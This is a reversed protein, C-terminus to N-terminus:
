SLRRLSHQELRHVGRALGSWRLLDTDFVMAASHDPKLSIAIGKYSLNGVPQPAELTLSIFSGYDMDKWPSASAPLPAVPAAAARGLEIAVFSLFVAIRM